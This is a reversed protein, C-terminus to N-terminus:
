RDTPIPADEAILGADRLGTWFQSPIRLAHLNVTEEVQEPSGLGLLVSAVAPHALPFQLAAAALPVDFERCHAELRAVRAVIDAPADGYDYRLPGGQATGTALIGSNYAGGIIVSVQRDLCLPLFQQLAEQELLTYRGAEVRLAGGPAVATWVQGTAGAGLRRGLPYPGVRSV